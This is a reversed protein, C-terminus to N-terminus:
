SAAELQRPESSDGDLVLVPKSDGKVAEANVVCQEVGTM